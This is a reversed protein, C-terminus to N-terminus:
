KCTEVCHLHRSLYHIILINLIQFIKSKEMLNKRTLYKKNLMKTLISKNCFIELLLQIYAMLKHSYSQQQQLINININLKLDIWIWFVFIRHAIATINCVFVCIFSLFSFWLNDSFDYKECSTFVLDFNCNGCYIM